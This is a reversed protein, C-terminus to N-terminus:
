HLKPDVGVSKLTEVHSRLVSDDACIPDIAPIETFDHQQVHALNRFFSKRVFKDAEEVVKDPDEVEPLTERMKKSVRVGPSYMLQQKATYLGMMTSMAIMGLAVYVPVFDGKRARGKSAEARGILGVDGIQSFAKPKPPTWTAYKANGGLQTAVFKYLRTSRFAM